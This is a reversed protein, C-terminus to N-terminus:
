VDCPAEPLDRLTFVAGEGGLRQRVEARRADASKIPARKDCCAQAHAEALALLAKSLKRVQANRRALTAELDGIRRRLAAPEGATAKVDLLADNAARVDKLDRRLSEITLAQIENALALNDRELRTTACRENAADLRRVIEDARATERALQSEFALAAVQEANREGVVAELTRRQHAFEKEVLTYNEHAAALREQLDANLSREAALRGRWLAAEDCAAPDIPGIDVDQEREATPFPTVDGM